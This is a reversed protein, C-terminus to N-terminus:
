EEPTSEPEPEPEVDLTEVAAADDNEALRAVSALREGDDLDILRVGQTNRGIIRIENARFRMVKGGSTVLMLQDDDSVLHVSIVRGTKDTTKMTIIGKGGRHTRRYEDMGTRKGYGLESVALLTAGDEVIDIAVLSDGEDLKMGIVGYTSRGMPRVETEEFRIAQGEATSLIIDSSGDTLRVGVVEDGEEISIAILGSLRPTSYQMLDTKKILGRRTAFMLYRGEQFERVPLVASLKEEPKLPLLNTIARGRAARGAQPIEHVKLWFVKGTTTFFMLYSHTSAVFVHEVFDEDRTTAGIKGRGGRRQARYLAVPNRKVYGEHSLTVVMDEEVILDELSIAAAEDVIRTRRADAYRERIERIEDVIIKSVERDDGLIQRYRAIQKQVEDYEAIIKDRELGTLRQLRMDLVAQAQLQSLGLAAMLNERAEPPDVAARIIAIAEDMREVAIKLGELIHLREEAKRLDYITRRVIVERRHKLFVQLADKLSLLKPRGDVIALMNVGFSEQLPTHKYLQNLLVEAVADRKLEIVIRMGHRDSEDRLDSIGNLKRENVLEAIREILRAKNVQYPIETVIIASRGTKDDTEIESLARVTLIGRGDHYADRIPKQGCIFGATPFDPGPIYRMLEAVTIEPKEVLAILGDCVEGLNHPPINTAMGVAIGAAGNILLNPVRNPLVVPESTSEDFNPIFDVTEKEIDSLLEEALQTLKCETYRYAAPPDGDVSGFNGQGDILPYRVNWSQALRVLADYVASDGHPHYKKLVEGVVGACKSYRRNHLLGESFMAYLIRRHVPKLGDRADPLARGVIVSMAYDMYSSRMEDEINVPVRQPNHEM